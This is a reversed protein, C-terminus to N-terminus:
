LHQNVKHFTVPEAAPLSGRLFVHEHPFVQNQGYFSDSTHDTSVPFLVGRCLHGPHMQLKHLNVRSDLLFLLAPSGRIAGRAQCRGRSDERGRRDRQWRSKRCFPSTNRNSLVFKGDNELCLSLVDQIFPLFPRTKPSLRRSLPIGGTSRSSMCGRRSHTQETCPM